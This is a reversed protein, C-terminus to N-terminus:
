HDTGHGKKGNIFVSNTYLENNLNIKKLLLKLIKNISHINIKQKIVKINLRVQQLQSFHKYM